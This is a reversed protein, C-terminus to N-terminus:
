SLTLDYQLWIRWQSSISIRGHVQATSLLSGELWLLLQCINHYEGLLSHKDMTHLFRHYIWQSPTEFIIDIGTKRPGYFYIVASINLSEGIKIIKIFTDKRILLTFYQLGSLQNYLHNMQLQQSMYAWKAVTDISTSINYVTLIWM